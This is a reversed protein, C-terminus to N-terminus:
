SKRVDKAFKGTEKHEVPANIMSKTMDDDAIELDRATALEENMLDGAQKAKFICMSASSGLDNNFPGLKPKYDGIFSSALGKGHLEHIPQAKQVKQINEAFMLAKGEKDLNKEQLM